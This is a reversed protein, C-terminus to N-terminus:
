LQHMYLQEQLNSLKTILKRRKSQWTAGRGQNQFIETTATDEHHLTDVLSFQFINDNREASASFSMVALM